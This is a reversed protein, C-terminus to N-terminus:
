HPGDYEHVVINTAGKCQKVEPDSSWVAPWGWGPAEAWENAADKSSPSARISRLPPMWYYDLWVQQWPSVSFSSPSTLECHDAYAAASRGRALCLLQLNIGGGRRQGGHRALELSALKPWDLKMWTRLPTHSTTAAPCFPQWTLIRCDSSFYCNAANHSTTLSATATPCFLDALAGAALWLSIVHLQMGIAIGHM